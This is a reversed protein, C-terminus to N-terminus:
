SHAPEAHPAGVRLHANFPVCIRPREGQYLRVSHQLYSPFLVILGAQPRV